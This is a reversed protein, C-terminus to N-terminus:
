SQCAQFRWMTSPLRRGGMRVVVMMSDNKDEKTRTDVVPEMGGMAEETETVTGM